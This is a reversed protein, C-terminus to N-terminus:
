LKTEKLMNYSCNEMEFNNDYDQLFSQRTTARCGRSMSVQGHFPAIFNKFTNKVVNFIEDALKNKKKM